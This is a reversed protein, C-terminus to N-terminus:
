VYSMQGTVAKAEYPLILQSYAISHNNQKGQEM